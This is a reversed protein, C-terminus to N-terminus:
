KDNFITSADGGNIRSITPTNSSISLEEYHGDNNNTQKWQYLKKTDEAKYIVNSKGISPFGFYDASSNVSNYVNANDAILKKIRADIEHAEPVYHAKNQEDVIKIAM